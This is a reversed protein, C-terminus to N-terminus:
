INDIDYFDQREKVVGVEEIVPLENGFWEQVAERSERVETVGFRVEGIRTMAHFTCRQDLGVQDVLDKTCTEDQEPTGPWKSIM